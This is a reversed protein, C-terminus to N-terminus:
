VPPSPRSVELLPPLSASSSSRFDLTPFVKGQEGSSASAPRKVSRTATRSLEQDVQVLLHLPISLRPHPQHPHHYCRHHLHYHHHHHHYHHHHCHHVLRKKVKPRRPWSSGSSLRYVSSPTNILTVITAMKCFKLQQWIKFSSFTFNIFVQRYLILLLTWPIM